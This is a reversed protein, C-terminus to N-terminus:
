QALIGIHCILVQKQNIIHQCSSRSEIGTRGDKQLLSCLGNACESQRATLFCNVGHGDKFFRDESSKAAFGTLHGGTEPRLARGAAFDDVVESEGLIQLDAGLAIVMEVEAGAFADHAQEIRLRKFFM